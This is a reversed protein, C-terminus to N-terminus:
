NYGIWFKGGQTITTSIRETDFWWRDREIAGKKNQDDLPSSYELEPHPEKERM